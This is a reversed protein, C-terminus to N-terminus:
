SRAALLDAEAQARLAAIDQDITIRRLARDRWASLPAQAAAPLGGLLNVASEIDGDAARAEARAILADAGPGKVDLRRITVVRSVAYAIQAMVGEGRAPTRAASAAAAGLGELEAALAARTPAGTVALARLGPAQAGPPLLRQAADLEAVFPRSQDASDTLEAVALSEAAANLLRADGSELRTVRAELPSAPAAAALPPPIALGLTQAPLAQPALAVPAAPRPALWEPVLLVVAAAALLCVVCVGMMAWFAASMMRGGGYAAADRTPALEATDPLANM